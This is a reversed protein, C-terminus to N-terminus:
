YDSGRLPPGYGHLPLWYTDTPINDGPRYYGLDYQAEWPPDVIVNYPLAAIQFAFLGASFFPQLIQNRQTSQTPDDLPYTLYRGIPGAFQEVSHGYRELVPDQFYLPLHCTAAAAWYKRQAVWTRPPLPVWDEPVPIAKIPRAEAPSPARSIDLQTQARLDSVVTDRASVPVQAQQRRRLEDEQKRVIMEVERKLEPRLTSPPNARNPIFSDFRPPIALPNENTPPPLSADHLAAVAPSAPAPSDQAPEPNSGLTSHNASVHIAETDTSSAGPQAVMSLETTVLPQTTVSLPVTDSCEEVDAPLPSVAKEERYGNPNSPSVEQALRPLAVEPNRITVPAPALSAHVADPMPITARASDARAVQSSIGGSLAPLEEATTSDRVPVAVDSKAVPIPDAGFRSQGVSSSVDPPLPPLEDDGTPIPTPKTSPVKSLSSAQMPVDAAEAKSGLDAPLPPLDGASKVMTSRVHSSTAPAQTVSVSQKVILPISTDETEMHAPAVPDGSQVAQALPPAPVTELDVVTLNPTQGRTFDVTTSQAFGSPSPVSMAQSFPIPALSSVHAEPGDNIPVPEVKLQDNAREPSYETLQGANKALENSLSGALTLDQSLKPLKAIDPFQRPRDSDRHFVPKDSATQSLRTTAPDESSLDSSIVDGSALQIPEGRDDADNTAPGIEGNSRNVRSRDDPMSSRDPRSAFRTQKAPSFGNRNRSRESLAYPSEADAAQRLGRQATEIGKSLVLKEANNLEAKRCEAERLFRLAREYEKYNLYDLGNRLLYRSGRTVSMGYLPDDPLKRVLNGGEARDSSVSQGLPKGGPPNPQQARVTSAALAAGLIVTTMASTTRRL